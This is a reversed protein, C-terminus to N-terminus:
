KGRIEIKVVACVCDQAHVAVSLVISTFILLIGLLRDICKKGNM